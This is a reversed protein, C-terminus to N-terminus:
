PCQRNKKASSLETSSSVHDQMDKAFLQSLRNDGCKSMHTNEGWSQRASVGKWQEQNEELSAVRNTADELFCLVEPSTTQNRQATRLPTDGLKNIALLAKPYVEVLFEIMELSPEKKACANHLPLYVLKTTEQIASPYKNYIYRLVKMDTNFLCATHLVTSGFDQPAELASPNTKIALKITSLAAGLAVLAALPYRSVTLKFQGGGVCFSYKVQLADPNRRIYKKVTLDDFQAREEPNSPNLSIM